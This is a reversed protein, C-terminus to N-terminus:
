ATTLFNLSSISVADSQEDTAGVVTADLITMRVWQAGAVPPFRVEQPLRDNGALGQEVWSGDSFTWRIALIRREALYRDTWITNGNVVRVGVIPDEPNLTFTIEEGVGSGLCRWFTSPNSDILNAPEDRTPGQLCTGEADLVTVNSVPGDYPVLTAGVSTTPSPTSSQSVSPSESPTLEPRPTSGLVLLRGIGFGLLLAGLVGAVVMRPPVGWGFPKQKVERGDAEPAHAEPEVTGVDPSEPSAQERFFEDPLRKSMPAM